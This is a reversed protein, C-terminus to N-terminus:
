NSASDRWFAMSMCHPGGRGRSLESSPIELLNLGAQYLIENTVRNRQYVFITGPRVALTNAGDNWQERDASIPDDGGCKILHVGDLALGRALIADLSDELHTISLSGRPGRVIEYVELVGLIGPHVTFVDRDAQTFVTDLHMFARTHPLMFALIRSFGQEGASLLLRKALADIAAPQTRESIGIALTDHSLVLIDGGEIAAPMGSEYLHVADKYRPHHAFVTDGFLSERRRTKTRMSNLSVGHGIVSFTDRTFYLNPIPDVVIGSEMCRRYSVADALSSICLTSFDLDKLRIGAVCAGVLARMSDLSRLHEAVLEKLNDGSLGCEDLYRAIFAEKVETGASLAEAVLDILYLVEVGEDALMRAFADHEEQAVELYPIDDFLLRDLNHPSLSLLEAGPRHLLVTRLPDIESFTNLAFPM